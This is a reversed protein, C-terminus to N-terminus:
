STRFQLPRTQTGAESRSRAPRGRPATQPHAAAASRRAPLLVKPSCTGNAHSSASRAPRATALRVCSAIVPPRPSSRRPRSAPVHAGFDHTRRVQQIDHSAGCGLCVKQRARPMRPATQKLNRTQPHAHLTPGAPAFPRHEGTADRTKAVLKRLPKAAGSVPASFYLRAAGPPTRHARGIQESPRKVKSLCYKHSSTM